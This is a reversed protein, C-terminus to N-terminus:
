FRLRNVDGGQLVLPVRRVEAGAKRLVLTAATDPVVFVPSRGHDLKLDDTEMRSHGDFVNVTIAEGQGDLVSLTDAAAPEALEVQVHMRTAVVVRLHEADGRSLELLGGAVGRGYEVPLIGEGDLRLYVNQKPVAPLEFRGDQDTATRAEAQGHMTSNGVSVVDGQVAVRVGAIPRNQRDVVVGAVTAFCASRDLRLTVDSRGAAVGPQDVMLLTKEDMARLRYERDELGALVFVGDADARVWPWSATPTDRVAARHAETGANQVRERLEELTACAAAVGEVVLPNGVSALLTADGLWVKAGAVPAGREDFVRGRIQLPQPGLSLVVFAPYGAAPRPLTARRHGAKSAQLLPGDAGDILFRGQEDSRVLKRGLAVHAAPAPLGRSDLVLGQVTGPKSTPLPLVITLASESVAPLPRRDPVLGECTTLLEAGRVAAAALAFRGAADPATERNAATAVDSNDSLRSRLDEPWVVRLRAQPLATGDAARVTGALDIARAVVVLALPPPAAPNVVAHMVTRWGPQTVELRHEGRGRAALAFTGDSSSVASPAAASLPGEAAILAVSLGAAARGDSDVVRGRISTGEAAPGPAAAPASATAPAVTRVNAPQEPPAAGNTAAAAPVPASTKAALAPAARDTVLLPRLLLATVCLLAAASTAFKWNMLLVGIAFTTSAPPLLQGPPLALVLWAGRGGCHHDLRARLQDCARRLHTHVTATPMQLRAAIARPPLDEFFRLLVATRYPDDLALVADVVVRHLAAREVLEAAAHATDGRAAAALQERRERRRSQRRQQRRLNHLVRVFWGRLNESSRPPRQLAQLCADQALDDAANPDGALKCALGRVWRADTLLDALPPLTAM